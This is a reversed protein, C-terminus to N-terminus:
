YLQFFRPWVLCDLVVTQWCLFLWGVMACRWSWSGGSATRVSWLGALIFLSSLATAALDVQIWTWLWGAQADVAALSLPMWLASALTLVAFAGVFAGYGLGGLMVRSPHIGRLLFWCATLYGLAALPMCATYPGIAEAPITGWLVAPNPHRILGDAYSGLVATGGLLQVAVFSGRTWDRAGVEGAESGDPSM